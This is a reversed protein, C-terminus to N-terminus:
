NDNEETLQVQYVQFRHNLGKLTHLKTLSKLGGRTPHEKGFFVTRVRSHTLAMACMMCAEGTLYVDYGTGLYPGTRAPSDDKEFDVIAEQQSAHQAGFRLQPFELTIAKRWSEDVGDLCLDLVSEPSTSLQLDTSPVHRPFGNWAGGRQSRAVADILVMPSHMMPHQAVNGIGLAVIRKTAPDVALGCDGVGDSTRRVFNLVDFMEKHFTSESHGFMTGNYQNEIAAIPHFKCPWNRVALEYQWRLSPQCNPVDKLVIGDDNDLFMRITEESIDKFRLYEELTKSLNTAEELFRISERENMKIHGCKEAWFGADQVIWCVPALVVELGRVRKLHQFRIPLPLKAGLEGMTASIANHNRMRGIAASELAIPNALTDSLIAQIKIPYPPPPEVIHKLPDTTTPDNDKRKRRPMRTTFLLNHMATSKLPYECLM